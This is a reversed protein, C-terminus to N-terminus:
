LPKPTWGEPGSSKEEGEAEQINFGFLSIIEVYKVWLCM